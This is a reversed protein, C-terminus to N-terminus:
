VGGNAKQKFWVLLMAASRLVGWGRKGSRPEDAKAFAEAHKKDAKQLRSRNYARKLEKVLKIQDRVLMFLMCLACLVVGCYMAVVAGALIQAEQAPDIRACSGQCGQKLAMVRDRSAM